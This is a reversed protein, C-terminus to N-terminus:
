TNKKTHTIAFGFSGGLIDDICEPDNGELYVIVTYKIIGEPPVNVNDDLIVLPSLFSVCTKLSNTYSFPEAFGNAAPAAYRYRTTEGTYLYTTYIEVRIADGFGKANLTVDYKTNLHLISEGVNKLYYTYAFYNKGNNSGDLDHLNSPISKDGDIPSQRDVGKAYLMTRAEGSDFGELTESLSIYGSNKEANILMNSEKAMVNGMLFIALFLLLIGIITFLVARARKNARYYQRSLGRVGHRGHINPTNEQQPTVDQKMEEDM